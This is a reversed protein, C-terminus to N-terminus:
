IAVDGYWFPAYGDVLQYGNTYFENVKKEFLVEDYEVQTGTYDKNNFQRRAFNDLVLDFGDVAKASM